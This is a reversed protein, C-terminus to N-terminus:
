GDWQEFMRNLSQARNEWSESKVRDAQNPNKETTELLSCLENSNRFVNVVDLYPALAPFSTALVPTGSALYERLKLPNCARIQDNDRFPLLAADWNCVYSPLLHHPQPEIFEVNKLKDLGNLDTQIPGILQFRWDPLKAATDRLLEVDVWDAISGYFGAVKQVRKEECAKQSENFFLEFDVGHPLIVTKNAPFRSGLLESAAIILDAKEILRKECALVPQHDVGALAGFDDGCYYVIARPSFQDLVDVATPLSTWCIPRGMDLTRLHGSIQRALIFKNLIRAISSGPWSIAKPAITAALQDSTSISTKTASSRTQIMASLKQTLRKFDRLSFRPRRMGISNVWVTKRDKSLYKILHQTSSPHAGWDEGFVLLDSKM